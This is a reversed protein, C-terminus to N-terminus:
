KQFERDVSSGWITAKWDEELHEPEQVHIRDDDLSDIPAKIEIDGDIVWKVKQPAFNPDAGIHEEGREYLEREFEDDDYSDGVIHRAADRIEKETILGDRGTNSHFYRIDESSLGQNTHRIKIEDISSLVNRIQKLSGNGTVCGLFNRFYASPSDKQLFKVDGSMTFNTTEFVPYTCGKQFEEPDPLVDDLEEYKLRRTNRDLASRQEDELDLKLLGIFRDGEYSAQITFLVGPSTSGDMHNILRIAFSHSIEEFRDYDHVDNDISLNLNILDDLYEKSRAEKEFKGVSIQNIDSKRIIDVLYDSFINLIERDVSMNRTSSQWFENSDEELGDAVPSYAIANINLTVNELALM